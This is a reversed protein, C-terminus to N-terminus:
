LAFPHPVGIQFGFRALAPIQEVGGFGVDVGPVRPAKVREVGSRQDRM